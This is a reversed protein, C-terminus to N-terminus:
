DADLGAQDSGDFPVGMSQVADAPSDPRDQQLRQPVGHRHDHDQAPLYTSATLRYGFGLPLEFVRPLGHESNHCHHVQDLLSAEISEGCYDCRTIALALCHKRKSFLNM